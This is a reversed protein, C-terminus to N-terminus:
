PGLRTGVVVLNEVPARESLSPLMDPRDTADDEREVVGEVEDGIIGEVAEPVLSRGM